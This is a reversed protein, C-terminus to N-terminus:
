KGKGVKDILEVEKIVFNGAYNDYDCEFKKVKIEQKFLPSDLVFTEIEGGEGAPNVEYKKEMEVLDYILKDDLIRGLYSEDFPYSFVGVIMVKFKNAVLEKLFEVQDKQWLSNFCWLDLDCCITQVRSGQYVSNIAGTVIGEINYKKVALEIASKLDVLEKEKEGKTKFEIIPINMVKAQIKAFDLGTSQFMYSEDNDSIMSILCSVEHKKSAEYLAFNSDKGGSFLIAVKM